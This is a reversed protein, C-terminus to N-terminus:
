FINEDVCCLLQFKTLKPFEAQKISIFRTFQWLKGMIGLLYRTVISTILPLGKIYPSKMWNVLDKSM